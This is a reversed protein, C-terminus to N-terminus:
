LKLKSPLRASFSRKQAEFNWKHLFDRLFSKKKPLKLLKLKSPFRASFNRKQTSFKKKSVLSVWMEVKCRNDVKWRLDVSLWSLQVELLIM